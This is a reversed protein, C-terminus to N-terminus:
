SLVVIDAATTGTAWVRRIALPYLVGDRLGKLTITDGDALTLRVDGGAGLLLARSEIGLDETDSPQVTLAARLPDVRSASRNTFPAQTTM